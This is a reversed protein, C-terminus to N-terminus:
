RSAVAFWDQIDKTGRCNMTDMENGSPCWSHVEFYGLVGRLLVKRYNGLCDAESLAKLKRAVRPRQQTVCSKRGKLKQMQEATWRLSCRRSQHRASSNFGGSFRQENPKGISYI